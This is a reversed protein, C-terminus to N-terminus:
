YWLSPTAVTGATTVASLVGTFGGVLQEPGNNIRVFLRVYDRTSIVVWPDCRQAASVTVGSVGYIDTFVGESGAADIVIAGDRV